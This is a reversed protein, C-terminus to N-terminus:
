LVPSIGHALLTLRVRLSGGRDDNAMGVKFPVSLLVNKVTKESVSLSAAIDANSMGQAVRALCDAERMTLAPFRSFLGFAFDHLTM